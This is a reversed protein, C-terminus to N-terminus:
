FASSDNFFAWFNVRNATAAAVDVTNALEITLVGAPVAVGSAAKAIAFTLIDGSNVELNAATGDLTLAWPTFAVMDDTTVTDTARAALGVSTTYDSSRRHAVTITAYDTANATLAADPTYYVASVTGTENAQVKRFPFVTTVTGAAADDADKVLELSKTGGTNRIQLTTPTSSGLNSVTGIELTKALSGDTHQLIAGAALMDRYQHKLTVTWLGRSTRAVSSVAPGKTSAAAPTDTGNPAFSGTVLIIKKGIVLVNDFTASAM